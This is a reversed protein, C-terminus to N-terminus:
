GGRPDPHMESGGYQLTLSYYNMFFMKGDHQIIKCVEYTFAEAEYETGLITDGVHVYLDSPSAGDTCHAATVVYMDGLILIEQNIINM